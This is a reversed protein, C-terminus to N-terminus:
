ATQSTGAGHQVSKEPKTPNQIKNIENVVADYETSPLDLLHDVPESGNGDISVLLFALAKKEQEVLFASPIDGIGIRGNQADDMNMKLASFMVSKLEQAERGTLYANLVVTRGDPTIIAKTQRENM